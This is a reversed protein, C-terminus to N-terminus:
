SEGKLTRRLVSTVSPTVSPCVFSSSYATAVGRPMVIDTICHRYFRMYQVNTVEFYIALAVHLLHILLNDKDASTKALDFIPASAEPFILLRAYM